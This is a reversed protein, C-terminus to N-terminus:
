LKFNALPVCFRQCAASLHKPNTHTGIKETDICTLILIHTITHCVKNAEATKQALYYEADAENLVKAMHSENEIQLAIYMYLEVSIRSVNCTTLNYM